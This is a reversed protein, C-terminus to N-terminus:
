NPWEILSCALARYIINLKFILNQAGPYLALVTCHWAWWSGVGILYTSGICLRKIISKRASYEYDLPGSNSVRLSVNTQQWIQLITQQILSSIVWVLQRPNGINLFYSSLFATGLVPKMKLRYIIWLYFRPELSHTPAWTFTCNSPPWHKDLRQCSTRTVLTGWYLPCNLYM